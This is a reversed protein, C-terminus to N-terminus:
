FFKAAIRSAVVALGEGVASGFAVGMGIGVMPAFVSVPFPAGQTVSAAISLGGFAFIAATPIVFIASGVKKYDALGQAYSEAMLVNDQDQNVDLEPEENITFGNEKM